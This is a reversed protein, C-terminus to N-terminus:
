VKWAILLSFINVKQQIWFTKWTRSFRESRVGKQNPYKAIEKRLAFWIWTHKTLFFIQDKLDWFALFLAFNDGWKSAGDTFSQQQSM